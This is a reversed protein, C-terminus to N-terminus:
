DGWSAAIKQIVKASKKAFDKHENAMTEYYKIMLEEKRIRALDELCKSVVKSTSTNSERAVEEALAKLEPKITVSLRTKTQVVMIVGGLICKTDYWNSVYYQIVINDYKDLGRNM